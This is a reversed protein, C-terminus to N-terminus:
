STKSKLSDIIFDIASAEPAMLREIFNGIESFSLIFIICISLWKGAICVVLTFEDQISPIKIYVLIIGMVILGVANLFSMVGKAKILKVYYPLLEKVGMGLKTALHEISDSVEKIIEKNM